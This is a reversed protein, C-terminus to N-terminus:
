MRIPKSLHSIGTDRSAYRKVEFLPSRPNRSVAVIRVSLYHPRGWAYTIIIPHPHLLYVFFGSTTEEIAALPLLKRLPLSFASKSHQSCCLGRCSSATHRTRRVSERHQSYTSASDLLLSNGPAAGSFPSVPFSRVSERSALCEADLPTASVALFM